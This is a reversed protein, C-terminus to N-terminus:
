ARPHRKVVTARLVQLTLFGIAAHRDLVDQLRGPRINPTGAGCDRCHVARLREGQKNVSTTVAAGSSASRQSRDYARRLGNVIPTGGLETTWDWVWLYPSRRVPGGGPDSHGEPYRTFLAARHLGRLLDMPDTPTGRGRWPHGSDACVIWVQAWDPATV